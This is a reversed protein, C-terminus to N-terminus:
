KDKNHRFYTMLTTRIFSLFFEIITTQTFDHCACLALIIKIYKINSLYGWYAKALVSVLIFVKPGLIRMQNGIPLLHKWLLTASSEKKQSTFQHRPRVNRFFTSSEYATIWVDFVSLGLGEDTHASKAEYKRTDTTEERRTFQSTLSPIFFLTSTIHTNLIFPFLGERGEM